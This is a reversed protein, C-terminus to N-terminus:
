CHPHELTFWGEDDDCGWLLQVAFLCILIPSELYPM